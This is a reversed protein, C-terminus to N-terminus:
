KKPPWRAFICTACIVAGPMAFADRVNADAFCTPSADIAGHDSARGVAVSVAVTVRSTQAVAPGPPGPQFAVLEGAFGVAPRM